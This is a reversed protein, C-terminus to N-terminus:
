IAISELSKQVRDLIGSDVLSYLRNNDLEIDELLDMIRDFESQKTM